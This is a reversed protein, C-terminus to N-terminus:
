GRRRQPGHRLRGGAATRGRGALEGRRAAPSSPGGLVDGLVAAAFILAILLRRRSM